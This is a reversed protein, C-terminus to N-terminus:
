IEEYEGYWKAVKYMPHTPPIIIEEGTLKVKIPRARDVIARLKGGSLTYRYGTIPFDNQYSM